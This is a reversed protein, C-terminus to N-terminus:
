LLGAVPRSTGCLVRVAYLADSVRVAQVPFVALDTTSTAIRVSMGRRKNARYTHKGAGKASHAVDAGLQARQPRPESSPHCRETKPSTWPVVTPV